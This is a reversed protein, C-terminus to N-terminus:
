EDGEELQPLHAQIFANPVNAMMVDHGKHADVTATLMISELAVTPSAADEQSLWECTQNGNYVMRGKVTQDRKETLFM